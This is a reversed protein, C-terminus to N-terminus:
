GPASRGYSRCRCGRPWSWWGRRPRRTRPRRPADTAVGTSTGARRALDEAATKAGATEARHTQALRRALLTKGAACLRECADLVAWLERATSGSVADPDLRDVLTALRDRVELADEFM